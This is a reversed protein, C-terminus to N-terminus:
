SVTLGLWRLWADLAVAGRAHAEIQAQGDAPRGRFAADGAAFFGNLMASASQQAAAACAPETLADVASALDGTTTLATLITNAPANLYDVAPIVETRFRAILPALAAYWEGLGACDGGGRPIGTRVASEEGTDIGQNWLLETVSAFQAQAELARNLATQRDLSELTVLADVQVGVAEVLTDRLGRLCEDFPAAEIAAASTQTRTVLESLPISPTYFARAFSTVVTDVDAAIRDWWAAPNPCPDPTATPEDSAASADSAGGDASAGSAGAPTELPPLTPLLAVDASAQQLNIVGLFQGGVIVGAGIAAFLLVLLVGNLVIRIVMGILGLCGLGRRRPQVTSVVRESLMPQPLSSGAFPDDLGFDAPDDFRADFKTPQKKDQKKAM